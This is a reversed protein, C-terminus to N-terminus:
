ALILNNMKSVFLKASIYVEKAEHESITGISDYTTHNRKRRMRDMLILLEEFEDDLSMELFRIVTAHHGVGATRYGREFMFARGAQLMANYAIAFAWDASTEIVTCVADLDRSAIKLCDEVQKRAFQGQKIKGESLLDSYLTM